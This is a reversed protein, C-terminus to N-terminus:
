QANFEEAHFAHQAFHFLTKKSVPKRRRVDVPKEWAIDASAQAIVTQDIARESLKKKSKAKTNM